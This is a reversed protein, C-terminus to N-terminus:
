LRNSGKTWKPPASDVEWSAHALADFLPLLALRALEQGTVRFFASAPARIVFDFRSRGSGSCDPVQNFLLCPIAKADISKLVQDNM